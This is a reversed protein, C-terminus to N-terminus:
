EPECGMGSCDNRSVEVMVAVNVGLIVADETEGEAGALSHGSEVGLRVVVGVGTHGIEIVTAPITVVPLKKGGVLIFIADVISVIKAGVRRAYGIIGAGLNVFVAARCASDVIAGIIWILGFGSNAAATDWIRVGIHVADRVTVIELM